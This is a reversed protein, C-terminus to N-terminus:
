RLCHYRCFEAAFAVHLRHGPYLCPLHVSLVKQTFNYRDVEVHCVIVNALINRAEDAKSLRRPGEFGRPSSKVKTGAHCHFNYNHVPGHYLAILPLIIARPVHSQPAVPLVHAAHCVLNIAQSSCPRFEALILHHQLKEPLLRAFAELFISAAVQAKISCLCLMLLACASISSFRTSGQNPDLFTSAYNQLGLLVRIVWPAVM